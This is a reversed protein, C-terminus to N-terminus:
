FLNFYELYRKNKSIDIKEQDKYFFLGLINIKNDDSLESIM